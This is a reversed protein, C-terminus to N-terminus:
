KNTHKQLYDMAIKVYAATGLPLCDEHFRVKPHHQGYCLEPTAVGAGIGMYCSPITQSICAFDESGMIHFLNKVQLSSDLGQVTEACFSTFDPDCVVDDVSSMIHLEHTTRCMIDIGQLIDEMRKLMYEKREKDFTRLTGKVTATDPIINEASGATFQGITLVVEDKAPCERAILAQFALYTQVGAYIPDVCYEPSSGHGGRGQLTISFSTSSSMPHHGYMIFGLPLQSSVHMAFAAQINDLVGQACVAKAGRLTEEGSQFLLYISGHIDQEMDKLLKAAGLLITAHLDHGCAHMNGNVAAFPEGSEEQIPLADMDSRLLISPNGSGLKGLIGAGDALEQYSIGIRDLQQKIYAITQPLQMDLEPIQHLHRRWSSLQTNIELAKQLYIDKM